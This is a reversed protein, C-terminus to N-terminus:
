LSSSLAEVRVIEDDYSAQSDASNMMINVTLAQNAKIASTMRGGTTDVSYPLPAVMALGASLPYQISEALAASINGAGEGDPEGDWWPALGLPLLPLMSLPIVSGGIPPLKPKNIERQLKILNKPDRLWAAAALDTPTSGLYGPASELMEVSPLYKSNWADVEVHSVTPSNGLEFQALNNRLESSMSSDIRVAGSNFAEYADFQGPTFKAKSGFKSDVVVVKGDKLAVFDPIIYGGPTDPWPIKPQRALIDYGQARLRAETLAEGIRGKINGNLGRPWWPSPTDRGKEIRTLGTTDPPAADKLAEARALEEATEYPSHPSDWWQRRKPPTEPVLATEPAAPGDGGNRPPQSTSPRSPNEGHGSAGKGTQPRSAPPKKPPPVPGGGGGNGANGGSKPGVGSMVPENTSGRSTPGQATGGPRDGGPRRSPPNMDGPRSPPMENGGGVRRSPPLEDGGVHVTRGPMSQGDTAEPIGWGGNDITNPAGPHELPMHEPSAAGGIGETISPWPHDPMAARIGAEGLGDIAGAGKGLAGMGKPGPIFFTGIGFGATGLTELPKDGFDAWDTGIVAMSLDNYFDLKAHLEDLKGDPSYIPNGNADKSTGQLYAYKTTLNKGTDYLGDFAQDQTPLNLSSPVDDWAGLMAGLGVVAHVGAKNGGKAIPNWFFVTDIVKDAIGVTDIGPKPPKPGEHSLTNGESDFVTVGFNSYLRRITTQGKDDTETTDRFWEGPKNGRHERTSKGSDDMRYLDVGQDTEVTRTLVPKGQSDPSVQWRVAKGDKDDIDRWGYGESDVQSTFKSVLGGKEDRTTTSITKNGYNDVHVNDYLGNGNAVGLDTGIRNGNSDYSATATTKYDSSMGFEHSAKGTTSTGPNFHQGYVETDQKDKGAYSSTGTSDDNWRQWGGDGNGAVRSNTTSGDPNTIVQDVTQNGNGKPITNSVTRGDPLTTTWTDGEKRGNTDPLGYIDSM